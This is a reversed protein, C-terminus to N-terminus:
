IIVAKYARLRQTARDFFSVPKLPEPTTEKRTMFARRRLLNRLSNFRTTNQTEVKDTRGSVTLSPRFLRYKSIM